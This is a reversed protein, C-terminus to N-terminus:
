ENEKRCQEHWWDDYTLSAIVTRFHEARLIIDDKWDMEFGHHLYSMANMYTRKQQEEYRVKYERFLRVLTKDKYINYIDKLLHQRIEAVLGESYFLVDEVLQKFEDERLPQEIIERYKQEIGNMDKEKYFDAIQQKTQFEDSNMYVFEIREYAEPATTIGVLEDFERKMM